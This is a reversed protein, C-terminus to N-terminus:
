HNHRASAATTREFVVAVDDSYVSHWAPSHELLYDLPQKPEILVWDIRYKDLIELPKQITVAKVYDGFTGNYVFLDARGDTFPKLGPANWEMFGGWADTNFIRGGVNERQMFKLAATPYRGNVDQQLNANSPFSFIIWGLVGGMIIANLWPKDLEREYPPFLRIWQALVPAMILGIFFVFRVHSLGAWLAFAMLMVDDLKWKRRSFLAAALWGFIILMVLKGSGKSFDVSHWEQINDVMGKQRFLLDFPYMVLKYGFPNLFLAVISATLALLLKKLERADWRRSVVSGWEGETLGSAIVIVFVVMGFVWSGHLNIWLAFLPPLFWLGQRKRRFLDLVLLLGVMCLWGFLLTRPGISVISLFIALLTALAADKCQAGAKCARYYVGVFILALVVFYVALLGRLGMTRFGLLFPVESLWEFNMWPSGAAGFSYTDVAPFSHHEFLYSADRLHWWIDPEAIARVCFWFIAAILLFACMVPFSFVTALSGSSSTSGSSRAAESPSHSTIPLCPGRQRTELM